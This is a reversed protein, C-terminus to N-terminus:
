IAGPDRTLMTTESNYPIVRLSHRGDESRMLLELDINMKEGLFFRDLIFRRNEQHRLNLYKGEAWSAMLCGDNIVLKISTKDGLRYIGLFNEIDPLQAKKVRRSALALKTKWVIYQTAIRSYLICKKKILLLLKLLKGVSSDPSHKSLFFSSIYFREPIKQWNPVYKFPLTKFQILHYLLVPIGNFTLNGRNWVLDGPTGEVVITTFFAKLDNCFALKKVVFTMSQIECKLQFITQGQMLELWRWNCEDFCYENPSQFVKKYDKSTKFLTNIRDTNKFLTFFGAIYEKRVSIIDHQSLVTYPLFSRINGYIVDLDGHGWFDYDTLYDSFLYGYAPKFDCLKYAHDLYVQFGLKRTALAKVENLTKKIIKINDPLDEKLNFDTVLLFDIDQNYSCSHIFLKFYWPPSGFYTIILAIKYPHSITDTNM